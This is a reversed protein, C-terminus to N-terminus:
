EARQSSTSSTDSAESPLRTRANRPGTVGARGTVRCIADSANHVLGEYMGIGWATHMTAFSAAVLPAVSVEKARAATVIGAATLGALYPGVVLFGITPRRVTLMAAGGLAAVLTPPALHRLQMSRPHRWVVDAKGRGYRRYQRFLDRLTERARWEIAVSPDLLLRYGARRIRHDMEYDENTQVEENWGGLSRLLAVPYAGFPVHDVERRANAYHYASNGVGFPSGLAAAIARGTRDGGVADKRGGVGGWAGTRLHSVMTRVYNTPVTSHADVRVVWLGRAHSLGLNLSTSILRRPNHLLRVRPDDAALARVVDRTADESAGDVVFVELSPYDQEQISALCAGISDEENFAPVVVTVLEEADDRTGAAPAEWDAV